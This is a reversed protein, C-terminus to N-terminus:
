QNRLTFSPVFYGTAKSTNGAVLGTIMFADETTATPDIHTSNSLDVFTGVNAITIAATLDVEFQVSPDVRMCLLTETDSTGSTKTELAIMNLEPDGSAAVVALGSSFKIGGFKTFATANTPKVVLTKGDEKVLPRFAM